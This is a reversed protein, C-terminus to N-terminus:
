LDILRPADFRVGDLASPRPTESPQEVPKKPPADEAVFLEYYVGYGVILAIVVLIPVMMGRDDAHTEADDNAGGKLVPVVTKGDDVDM